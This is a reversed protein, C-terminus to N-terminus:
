QIPEFRHILTLSFSYLSLLPLYIYNHTGTSSSHRYSSPSTCWRWQNFCPLQATHLSLSVIWVHNSYWICVYSSHTAYLGEFARQFTPSLKDFLATQSTFITDGGSPPTKVMRLLTYSPPNVEPSHDGHYEAGFNGYARVNRLHGTLESGHHPASCGVRWPWSHNCAQSRTPKSRHGATINYTRLVFLNFIAHSVIGYYSALEHQQDLTIDQDRLFVV